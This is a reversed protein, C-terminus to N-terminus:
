EELASNTPTLQRLGANQDWASVLWDAGLAAPHTGGIVFGYFRGSPIAVLGREAHAGLLDIVAVPDTPGEPLPGGLLAALEEVTARAPVTRDDLSRLWDKAHRMAAELAADRHAHARM